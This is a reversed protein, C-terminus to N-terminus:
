FNIGFNDMQFIYSKSLFQTKLQETEPFVHLKFSKNEWIM